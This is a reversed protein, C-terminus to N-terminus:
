IVIPTAVIAITDNILFASMIGMVFLIFFLIQNPTKAFSLIKSVMYNLMGSSELGSVLIFMGLLFFIVDFNIASFADQISIIQLVLVAIAGISMSAWITINKGRINRFIILGYVLIFIVLSSFFVFGFEM